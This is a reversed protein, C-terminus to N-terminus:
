VVLRPNLGESGSEEEEEEDGSIPKEEDSHSFTCAAGKTCKGEVYFKCPRLHRLAAEAPKGIDEEGHAWTCWEGRDCVGLKWFKCITRRQVKEAETDAKGQPPIDGSSSKCSKDRCDALGRPPPPPPVSPPPPPVSSVDNLQSSQSVGGGGERRSGRESGGESASESGPSESGQSGHASWERVVEQERVLIRGGRAGDESTDSTEEKESEEEDDESGEDEEENTEEETESERGSTRRGREVDTRREVGRGRGKGRGGGEGGRGGGGGRGGKRGGRGRCGGDGGRGEEGLGIQRWSIQKRAALVGLEQEGHVWACSSGRDCCGKKWFKCMGRKEASRGGRRQEEGKPLPTIREQQFSCAWQESKFSRPDQGTDYCPGFSPNPYVGGQWSSASPPFVQRRPGFVEGPRQFPKDFYAAGAVGGANYYRGWEETACDFASRHGDLWGGGGSCGIGGQSVGRCQRAQSHLQWRTEGMEELPEVESEASITAKDEDDESEEGEETEEPREKESKVYEEKEKTKGAKRSTQVTKRGGDEQQKVRHGMLAVNDEQEANENDEEKESDEYAEYKSPRLNWTKSVPSHVQECQEEMRSTSVSWVCRHRPEEVPEESDSYDTEPDPVPAEEEEVVIRVSRHRPSASRDQSSDRSNRDRWDWLRRPMGGRPSSSRDRCGGSTRGFGSPHGSGRLLAGGNVEMPAGIENHGHAWTCENGKDCRGLEFFKCLTRKTSKREGNDHLWNCEHGKDCRGLLWFKCLKTRFSKSGEDM